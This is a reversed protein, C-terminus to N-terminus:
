PYAGGNYLMGSGDGDSTNPSENIGTILLSCSMKLWTPPPPHGLQAAAPARGAGNGAAHWWGILLGVLSGAASCSGCSPDLLPKLLAVAQSM